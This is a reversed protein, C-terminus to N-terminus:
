IQRLGALVVVRSRSLPLWRNSTHAGAIVKAAIAVSPFAVAVVLRRRTEIGVIPQLVGARFLDDRRARTVDDCSSNTQTRVESGASVVFHQQYWYGRAWLDGYVLELESAGVPTTTVGIEMEGSDARDSPEEPEPQPRTAARDPAQLFHCGADFLMRLADAVIRDHTARNSDDIAPEPPQVGKVVAVVGADLALNTLRHQLDLLMPRDFPSGDCGSVL